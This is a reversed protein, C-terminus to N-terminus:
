VFFFSFFFMPRNKTSIDFSFSRNFHIKSIFSQSQADHPFVDILKTTSQSRICEHRVTGGVTILKVIEMATVSQKNNNFDIMLQDAQKIIEVRGCREVMLDMGNNNNNNNNNNITIIIILSVVPHIGPQDLVAEVVVFKRRIEIIVHVSDVRDIFVFRVFNMLSRDFIEFNGDIREPM